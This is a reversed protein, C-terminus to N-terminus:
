SPTRALDIRVGSPAEVAGEAVKALSLLVDLPARGLRASWGRPGRELTASVGLANAWLFPASADGFGPLRRAFRRTTARALGALSRAARRSVFLDRPPLLFRADRRSLLPSPLPELASWAGEDRACLREAVASASAQVDIDFLERWLGDALYARFRERGACLGLAAYAVLAGEGDEAPAAAAIEAAGLDPLLLLFGGFPTFRQIPSTRAAGSRQTAADALIRRAKEQPTRPVLSDPARGHGGERAREASAPGGEPLSAGQAIEVWLRAAVALNAGALASRRAFAAVFIALASAGDPLESAARAVAEAAQEPTASGVEGGFAALTREAEVPSLARLVALRRLPPLSALAELGVRADATAATRIAQATTLFRLGEADRLWWQGARGEALAEILAALYIARSPYCVVGDSSAREEARRIERAIATALASALTRPEFAADLTVDVELRRIRVVTEGSWSRAAQGLAEPLFSRAAEVLRRELDGPAPHDRPALGRLELRGIAIRAAM